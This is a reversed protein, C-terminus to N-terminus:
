LSSGVIGSFRAAIKAGRPLAMWVARERSRTASSTRIVPAPGMPASPEPAPADSCFPTYSVTPTTGIDACDLVAEVLTVARSTGGFRKPPPSDSDHEHKRKTTQGVSSSTPMMPIPMRAYAHNSHRLMGETLAAGVPMFSHSLEGATSHHMQLAAPSLRLGCTEVDKLLTHRGGRPAISSRTTSRATLEVEAALEAARRARYEASWM